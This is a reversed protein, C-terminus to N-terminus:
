PAISKVTIQKTSGGWPKGKPIDGVIELTVKSVSYMCNTSMSTIGGEFRYTVHSAYEFADEKIEVPKKFIVTFSKGTEGNEVAGCDANITTVNTFTIEELEPASKAVSSMVGERISSTNSVISKGTETIKASFYKDWFDNKDSAEGSKIAAIKPAMESLLMKDTSGDKARIADAIAALSDKNVLVKSM